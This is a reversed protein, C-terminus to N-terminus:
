PAGMPGNAGDRNGPSPRRVRRPRRESPPQEPSPPRSPAPAFPVRCDPGRHLIDQGNPRDRGEFALITGVTRLTQSVGHGIGSFVLASAVLESRTRFGKERPS